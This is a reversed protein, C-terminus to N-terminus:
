VHQAASEQDKKYALASKLGNVLAVIIIIKVIIGKALSTPEIGVAVIINTLYLLLATLTAAFPNSKAWFFLIFFVIGLAFTVGIEIQAQTVVEQIVVMGPDSKVKEIESNLLFWMVISFIITIVAVFMIAIRAGRIHKGHQHNVLSGLSGGSPSSSSTQKTPGVLPEGCNTCYRQGTSQEFQCKKCIITASQTPQNKQQFDTM